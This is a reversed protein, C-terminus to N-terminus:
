QRRVAITRQDVQHVVGVVAVELRVLGLVSGKNAIVEESAIRPGRFEHLGPAIVLDPRQLAAAVVVALHIGGVFGGRLDLALGGDDQGLGDLAPRQSRVEFRSVGRVLHLFERHLIQLLEAVSQM